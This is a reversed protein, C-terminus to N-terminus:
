ISDWIIRTEKTPNELEIKLKEKIKELIAYCDSKTKGQVVIPGKRSSKDRILSVKQGLEINDFFAKRVGSLASVEETGEIKTITGEPLLYCFYAAAGKRIHIEDNYIGLADKVLLENANVSSAAPIIESSIFVGGGRAAIEVLYIIGTKKEVIFEGHTIGFKLNFGKVLNENLHMLQKEIESNAHLADQFVTASPIFTGPINFYDRHGVMLNTVQYNHTYSEVVFEDGEIYQELIITRTNSYSQTYSFHEIIENLSNVQFIGNSASGDVPKMILPFHLENNRLISKVDELNKILRSKPVNIGIKEASTRMLYKNTFKLAVDYSIGPLGMKEAVYAVTPVSQDLQDTLIADISLEKAKALVSEKNKIDEFFPEDCIKFGPYDGKPSVAIVYAGYKHCLEMLPIQGRGAGLIMIKKM